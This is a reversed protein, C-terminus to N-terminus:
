IKSVYLKKIEDQLNFEIGLSKKVVSEALINKVEPYRWIPIRKYEGISLYMSSQKGNLTPSKLMVKEKEKKFWM